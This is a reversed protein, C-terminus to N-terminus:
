IDLVRIQGHTHFPTRIYSTRLHVTYSMTCIDCQNYPSLAIYESLAANTLLFIAPLCYLSLSRRSHSHSLKVIGALPRNFVM